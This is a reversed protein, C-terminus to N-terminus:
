PLKMKVITGQAVYNAWYLTDGDIALGNPGSQGDALVEPTAFMEGRMIAGAGLEGWYLREGDSVLGTPQDRDGPIQNLGNGDKGVCAVVEDGQGGRFTTWCVQDGFLTVANAWPADIVRVASSGDKAARHIGGTDGFASFYVDASDLALLSPSGIDSALATGGSPLSDLDAARLSKGVQTTWYVRTGDVGIGLAVGQDPAVDEAPGGEAAVRRVSGQSLDSNTWYVFGGGAAIQNPSREDASVLAPPGGDVPVKMVRGAETEVWFVFGGAVAVSKPHDLGEALVVPGADCTECAAHVDFDAGLVDACGLHLAALSIGM